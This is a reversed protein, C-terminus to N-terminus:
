SPQEHQLLPLVSDHRQAYCVTESDLLVRRPLAMCLIPATECPVGYRLSSECAMWISASVSRRAGRTTMVFVHRGFRDM